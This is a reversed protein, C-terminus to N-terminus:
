YYGLFRLDCYPGGNCRHSVEHLVTQLRPAKQEPWTRAQIAHQVTETPTDRVADQDAFTFCLEQYARHSDANKTHHSLLAGILESLPHGTSFFRFPPGTSPASSPVRLAKGQRM